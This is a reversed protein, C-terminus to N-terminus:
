TRDLAIRPRSQGGPATLDGGTLLNAHSARNQACMVANAGSM